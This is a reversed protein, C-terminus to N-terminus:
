PSFNEADDAWLGTFVREPVIHGKTKHVELHDVMAKTSHAEFSGWDKKHMVCACCELYGGVHMFVYVDGELFRCYSM